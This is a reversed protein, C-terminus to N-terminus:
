DLGLEHRAEDKAQQDAAQCYARDSSSLKNWDHGSEIFRERIAPSQDMRKWYADHYEKPRNDGM